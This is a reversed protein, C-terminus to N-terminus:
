MERDFMLRTGMRRGFFSHNRGAYAGWVARSYKKWTTHTVCYSPGGLPLTVVTVTALTLRPNVWGGKEGVDARGKGQCVSFLCRTHKRSEVLSGRQTYAEQRFSLGGGRLIWRGKGGEFGVSSVEPPFLQVQIFKYWNHGCYYAKWQNRM